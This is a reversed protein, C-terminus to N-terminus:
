VGLQKRARSIMATAADFDPDAANVVVGQRGSDPPPFLVAVIWAAIDPDLTVKNDAM